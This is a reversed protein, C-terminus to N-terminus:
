PGTVIALLVAVDFINRGKCVRCAKLRCTLTWRNLTKM